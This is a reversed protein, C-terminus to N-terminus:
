KGAATEERFLHFSDERSLSQHALVPTVVTEASTIRWGRTLMTTDRTLMIPDRTLTGMCMTVTLQGQGQRELCCIVM